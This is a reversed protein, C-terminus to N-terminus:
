PTYTGAPQYTISMFKAVIDNDATGQLKFTIAISNALTEAGSAELNLTTGGHTETNEYIYQTTGSLRTVVCRHVRLLNTTPVGAEGACTTSGWVIASLKNNANNASRAAAEIVLRDGNNALFGAPLNYTYITTLGAGTNGTNTTFTALPIQSSVAGSAGGGGAGRSITTVSSLTASGSTFVSARVRVRLATVPASFLGGFAGNNVLTTTVVGTGATTVSWPQWNVDDITQEFVLTMNFTGQIQIGISGVGDTTFIVCGVGPCTTATAITGTRVQANVQSTLAFAALALGLLFRRM